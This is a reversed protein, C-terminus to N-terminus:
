APGRTRISVCSCRGCCHGEGQQLVITGRIAAYTEQVIEGEGDELRAQYCGCM